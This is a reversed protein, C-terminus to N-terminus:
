ANYGVVEGAVANHVYYLHYRTRALHLRRVGRIKRHAYPTGIGPADVLLALAAALEELFLDPAAPRNAQWWADIQEVLEDADTTTRLEARM